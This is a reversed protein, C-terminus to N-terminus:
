AVSGYMTFMPLYVALLLGVTIFALIITIAPELLALLRDTFVTIENDFYESIVTLTQELNGSREGVGTMETLMQLFCSEAAMCDVLGKGQEVGTRVRRVAQRVAENSIVNATVGLSQTIPLGATLMTAMTSAFRSAANM